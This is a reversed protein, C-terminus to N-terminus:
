TLLLVGITVLVACIFKKALHDREKLFIAALVVTLIVTSQLIPTIQSAKAGSEIAKYFFIASTGYCIDLILMKSFLKRHFFAKLKFLIKPNVIILFLGPLLFGIATYSYINVHKLLYTDNTIAIGYFLAMGLAYYVGRNLKLKGFGQSILVVSLLILVTGSFQKLTFAEKLLLVASSITIIVRSATVITIESAELYRYAKFLCYTGAGYLVTLLLFNIPYQGIPLMKLNGSFVTFAGVVVAGLLQFVVSYSYADSKDDKMLVRQLLSSIASFFVAALGFVIWPM